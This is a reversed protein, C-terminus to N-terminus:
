IDIDNMNGNIERRQMLKNLHGIRKEQRIRCAQKLYKVFYGDVLADFTYNQSSAHRVCEKNNPITLNGDIVLFTMFKKNLDCLGQFNTVEVRYNITMRHIRMLDGEQVDPFQDIEDGFFMIQFDDSDWPLTADRIRIQKSFNHWGKSPKIALANTIFGYIYGKHSLPVLESLPIYPYQPSLYNTNGNNRINLNFENSNNLHNLVTQKTLRIGNRGTIRNCCSKFEIWVNEDNPTDRDLIFAINKNQTPDCENEPIREIRIGYFTISLQIDSRKTANTNWFYEMIEAWEDLLYASTKKVQSVNVYSQMTLRYRKRINNHDDKLHNDFCQKVLGTFSRKTTAFDLDLEDHTMSLPPTLFTSTPTSVNSVNSLQSSLTAM